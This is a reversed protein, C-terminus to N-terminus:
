LTTYYHVNKHVRTQVHAVLHQLRQDWGTISRILFLLTTSLKDGEGNDKRQSLMKTLCGWSFLPSSTRTVRARACMEKPKGAFNWPAVTEGEKPAKGWLSATGRVGAASLFLCLGRHTKTHLCLEKWQQGEICINGWIEGGAYRRRCCWFWEKADCREEM